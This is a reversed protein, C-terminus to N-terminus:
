AVKHVYIGAKKNEQVFAEYYFRFQFMWGDTMQNQEPTVVKTLAHKTVTFAANKDMLIFNINKGATNKVYGGATQGSTKGDHLDIKDYFRSQPITIIPIDNYYNIKQGYRDVGNDLKRNIETELNGKITPTMLLIMNAEDVEAEGSQAIATDIAEKTNSNTLTGTTGAVGTTGAIKAVTYADKEPVVETRVFEGSVNLLTMGLSELNDMRDLTFKRGRDNAFTHTEWTLDLNGAPFGTAKDYDGLGDFSLKAIKFVNAEETERVMNEPAELIATKASQKYVEDLLPLYKTVLQIDNAM